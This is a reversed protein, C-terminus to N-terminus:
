SLALMRELAVAAWKRTEEDLTIENLYRGEEISKLVDRLETLTTENMTPCEPKTASLVYTNKERLRNV